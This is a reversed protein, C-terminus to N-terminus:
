AAALAGNDAVPAHIALLSRGIKEEPAWGSPVCVNMWAVGGQDLDLVPLDQELLLELAIPEAPMHIGDRVTQRTISALADSADFGASCLVSQGCSSIRQKELFLASGQDLASLHRADPALRRLGPLMRFPVTIHTFDFRM